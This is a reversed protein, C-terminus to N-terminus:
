SSPANNPRRRTCQAWLTLILGVFCTVTSLGFLLWSTAVCFALLAELPENWMNRGFILSPQYPGYVEGQIEIHYDGEQAVHVVWVRVLMDYQASIHKTRPSEIVEPPSTGDPGSIHISLPPVPEDGPGATRLTADVQGAPLHVTASGPIPAEGYLGGTVLFPLVASVALVIVAFGVTLRGSTIGRRM